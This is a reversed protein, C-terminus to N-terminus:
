NGIEYLFEPAFDVGNEWCVTDNAVMFSNFTNEDLLARIVPRHDNQITNKLDVTMKKGDNFGIFIEYTGNAKKAETIWIM